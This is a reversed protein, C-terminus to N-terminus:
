VDRPGPDSHSRERKRFCVIRGQPVANFAFVEEPASFGSAEVRRALLDLEGPAHRLYCFRSLDMVLAGAEAVGALVRDEDVQTGGSNFGTFIVLSSPGIRERVAGPFEGEVATALKAEPLTALLDRMALFRRTDHEVGITPLGHAALLAVLQGLGPGAEIYTTFGCAKELIFKAVPVDYNSFARGEAARQAYFRYLGGEDVGMKEIRRDIFGVIKKELSELDVMLM